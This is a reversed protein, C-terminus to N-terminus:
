SRAVTQGNVVFSSPQSVKGSPSNFQAGLNTSSNAYVTANYPMNACTVRGGAISCNGNWFNAFTENNTIPWSISWNTVPSSSNNVLDIGIVYGSNWSSYVTYRVALQGGGPGVSVTPTPPVPTNTPAATPKVTSVPTNTPATTTTPVPPNTPAPKNTPTPSKPATTNTPVPPNTATPPTTGGGSGDLAFMIPKLYNQKATNITTWDDNLIGGTDGSNPNWSWFTWNLGNAGTGLYNTLTSFWKIDSDTQLKTGFEGLWVPAINNKVLYGWHTDWVGPLNNPYNSAGFWSQGYVSAPYDHASYVLRNAVNLRVPYAGAGELNGGWWYYDNNYSEVGEVFILWNPNVALVANGAREAALRWDTNTNGCGWCAQGHPENHLDAGVVTPNNNYRTALMQWDSIWRSESYASTYWLESQANADPRHRDLIIRLGIQGSYAVIKDMIQLGTLNALDGNKGFDIGNPASGADFLQNSYPLRVTNYGQAKIQDLMDKYGRSWLGHAVYNSTEFGFWNVGAIRVRNNNSDYIGTGSTHWYGTGAASATQLNTAGFFGLNALILNLLLLLSAGLVTKLFLGSWFTKSFKMWIIEKQTLLIPPQRNVPFYHQASINIGFYHSLNYIYSGFLAIM